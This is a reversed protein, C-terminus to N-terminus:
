IFFSCAHGHRDEQAERCDAILNDMIKVEGTSFEISSERKDATASPQAGSGSDRTRYQISCATKRETWADKLIYALGRGKLSHEKFRKRRM